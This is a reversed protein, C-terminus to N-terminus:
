RKTQEVTVEYEPEATISRVQHAEGSEDFAPLRDKPIYIPADKRLPLIKLTIGKELVVPAFRQLGIEWTRGFYFDDDILRGSLYARGVDGAYDVRLFLEHANKLADKAVSVQWIGARDFDADAPELPVNKDDLKVPAAPEAHKTQRWEVNVKTATVDAFYHEFIGDDRGASKESESSLNAPPYISVSLDEPHRSQMKLKDGDFLLGAKSLFLRDADWLHAKYARRAQEQSLLLIQATTGNRGHLKTLSAPAAISVRAQEGDALTHPDFVFETPIGDIAFFVFTKGIRCLPQATAYKLMVGDLEMNFPWIFYTQAPVRIAEAPVKLIEDNLKLEFQVAEHAPLSEIRQYNNVFLYGRKGDSRASWRLTERDDLSAPRQDPLTMPLPALEGGFDHLFLHEVRLADYSARRQGYEGLPAQFDYNIVPMDNPYHTARSENLTSLRGIQNAGGHYMYYGQMNSGSGLKVFALAAVDDAEIVPRRRYSVQMGGGLEVTAYPYRATVDDAKEAGAKTLDAGITSDDRNHSFFYNARSERAWDTSNRSWFADPYGGFVPLVENEPVRARGWGTITYLPVDIGLERVMKKLTLIHAPNNTLENELQVGIVPGGNKWLLGDLQKAIQAYFERVYGLYPEADKRVDKGCKRLLWDPFGGNRVEGHAWPGFRPYVLLGHKKCLEVFARLDRDGTWDWKGEEEEHYIWFVYTAVVTIGGAKMKLLEQEWQERPYRAFHFEGIVPYWPKGSLTLYRSNANIEVGDPNAGGMRFQGSEVSLDPNSLDITSPSAFVLGGCHLITAAVFVLRTM